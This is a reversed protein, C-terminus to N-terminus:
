ASVRAFPPTIGRRPEASRTSRGDAGPPVQKVGIPGRALADPRFATPCGDEKKV